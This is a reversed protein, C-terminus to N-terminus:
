ALIEPAPISATAIGGDTFNGGGGDGDVILPETPALTEVGDVILVETPALTEGDTQITPPPTAGGVSGGGDVILTESPAFSPFVTSFPIPPVGTSPISDVALSPASSPALSPQSTATDGGGAQSVPAATAACGCSGTFFPFADCFADDLEGNLGQAEFDGCSVPDFGILNSLIVDPLTVRLGEGCIECVDFM